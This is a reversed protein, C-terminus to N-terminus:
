NDKGDTDGEGDSDSPADDPPAEDFTLDDATSEGETDSLTLEPDLPEDLDPIKEEAAYASAAADAEVVAEGDDSSSYNYTEADNFYSSRAAENFKKVRVLNVIMLVVGLIFTVLGVLQSIRIDVGFPRWWLS